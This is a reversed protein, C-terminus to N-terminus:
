FRNSQNIYILEDFSKIPSQVLIYNDIVDKTMQTACYSKCIIVCVTFIIGCIRLYKHMDPFEVYANSNECIRLYLEAYKNTNILAFGYIILFIQLYCLLCLDYYM